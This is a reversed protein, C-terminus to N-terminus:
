LFKLTNIWRPKVKKFWKDAVRHRHKSPFFRRSFIDATVNEASPIWRTRIKMSQELLFLHTGQACRDFPFIPCRAMDIWAKASFNDLTLFTYRGSCFRAFTECTILAALFEAQNIKVSGPSLDSMKVVKDWEEWSLQWFFGEVVASPNNTIDLLVVGGMGYSTCADSFLRNNNIPLRGLLFDFSSQPSAVVFRRWFKLDILLRSM